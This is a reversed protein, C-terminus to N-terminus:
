FAELVIEKVFGPVRVHDAVVNETTADAVDPSVGVMVEDVVDTQVVDPSTTVMTDDPEQVRTADSSPFM